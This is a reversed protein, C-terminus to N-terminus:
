SHCLLCQMWMFREFVDSLKDLPRTNPMMKGTVAPAADSDSPGHLLFSGLFEWSNSTVLPLTPTLRFPLHLTPFGFARPLSASEWRGKQSIFFRYCCQKNRRITYWPGRKWILYFIQKPSSYIQAGLHVVISGCSVKFQLCRQDM